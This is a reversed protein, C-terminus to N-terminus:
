VQSMYYCKCTVYDLTFPSSSAFSWKWTAGCSGSGIALVLNQMSVVITPFQDNDDAAERHYDHLEFMLLFSVMEMPLENNKM